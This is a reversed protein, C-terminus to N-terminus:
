GSSGDRIKSRVYASLVESSFFTRNKENLRAILISTVFGRLKSSDLYLMLSPCNNEVEETILDPLDEVRKTLRDLVAELMEIPTDFKVDKLDELDSSFDITM